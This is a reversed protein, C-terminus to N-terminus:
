PTPELPFCCCRPSRIPSPLTLEKRQYIKIKTRTNSRRTCSAQPLDRPHLSQHQFFHLLLLLPFFVLPLPQFSFPLAPVRQLQWHGQQLELPLGQQQQQEQGPALRQKLPALRSLPFAAAFHFSVFLLLLRCAHHGVLDFVLVPIGKNSCVM